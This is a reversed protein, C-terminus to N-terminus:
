SIMIEMKMLEGHGPVTCFLHINRWTRDTSNFVLIEWREQSRGFSYRIIVEPNRCMTKSLVKLIELMAWWSSTEYDGNIGKQRHCLQAAYFWSKRLWDHSTTVRKLRSHLKIFKMEHPSWVSNSWLLNRNRQVTSSETWWQIDAERKKLSTHIQNSIRGSFM